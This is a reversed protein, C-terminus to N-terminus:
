FVEIEYLEGPEGGFELRMAEPTVAEALQFTTSFEEKTVETAAPEIWEEGIKVLLKMADLKWGGIVVKSFTPNVQTLDLQIFNDECKNIWCALNDAVGDFLKNRCLGKTGFQTVKIKSYCNFLLSGRNCRKYELEDILKVTEGYTPLGADKVVNTAVITELPKLTFTNGSITRNHRFEHWTGTLGDVTVTLPTQNFNVLVFMKEDGNDYHVCEGDDSRFLQTRKGHLVIEELAEFTTFIYRM